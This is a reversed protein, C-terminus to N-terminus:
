ARRRKPASLHDIKDYLIDLTQEGEVIRECVGPVIVDFANLKKQLDWFSTMKSSGTDEISLPEFYSFFTEVLAWGGAQLERDVELYVSTIHAAAKLVKIERSNDEGPFSDDRERRNTHAM